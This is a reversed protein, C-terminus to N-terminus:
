PDISHILLLSIIQPRNVVTIPTNQYRVPSDYGVYVEAFRSSMLISTMRIVVNHRQTLAESRKLPGEDTTCIYIFLARHRIECWREQLRIHTCHSRLKEGVKKELFLHEAFHSKTPRSFFIKNCKFKAYKIM